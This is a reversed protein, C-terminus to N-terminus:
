FCLYEFRGRFDRFDGFIVENIYDVLVWDRLHLRRFATEQIYDKLTESCPVKIDEVVCRIDCVSKVASDKELLM